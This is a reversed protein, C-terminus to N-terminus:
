GEDEFHEHGGLSPLSEASPLGELAGQECSDGYSEEDDEYLTEKDSALTVGFVEFDYGAQVVYRVYGKKCLPNRSLQSGITTGTHIYPILLSDFVSIQFRPFAVGFQLDVDNGINSAEEAILPNDPDPTPDGSMDGGDDGLFGLCGALGAAGAAGVAAIFRRRDELGQRGSRRTREGGNGRDIM